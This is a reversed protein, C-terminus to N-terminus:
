NSLQSILASVPKPLGIKVHSNTEHWRTTKSEEIKSYVDLMSCVIPTYDLHYHSFTHRKEDITLAETLNVGENQCWKQLKQLTEFEPFAWLGGWLGVPARQNLLIKQKNKLILWYVKKVPL